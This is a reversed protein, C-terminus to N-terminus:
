RRWSGSSPCCHRAHPSASTTSSARGSRTPFHFGSDEVTRRSDARTAADVARAAEGALRRGPTPERARAGGAVRRRRQAQGDAFEELLRRTNVELPPPDICASSATSRSTTRARSAAALARRPARDPAPDHQRGPQVDARPRRGPGQPRAGQRRPPDPLGRLRRHDGQDDDLHRHRVQLRGADLRGAGPLPPHPRRQRRLRRRDAPPHAARLAGADAPLHRHQHDHRRVQLPQLAAGRLRLRGQPDPGALLEIWEPVISRLDSDVVVLAQVELQAAIQFITRLAAGKGGVGDVEPYTLSIRQLKNRRGSSCSGSSTTPRSPTSSSASRETPRAPTPTSSCPGCTPSTSSSAPRRPACWTASRAANKFSPIGVMIDAKGLREVEDRLAQPSRPDPM